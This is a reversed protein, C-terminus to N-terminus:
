RVIISQDIQSLVYPSIPTPVMTPDATKLMRAAGAHQPSKVPKTLKKWENGKKFM